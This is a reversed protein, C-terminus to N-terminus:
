LGMFEFGPLRRFGTSFAVAGSADVVMGEVNELSEILELGKKRGLVFVATALADADATNATVITASPLGMSPMGTVPDLIHHYRVGGHIYYRQYDGSTAVAIDEADFAAILSEPKRPHQLGVRWAKGAAPRGLVALDGGANVLANKVGAGALVALARDVAYGKGIAGLDIKMGAKGLRIQGDRIEIAADDVLDLARTLTKGAPPPGPEPDEFHWLAVVPGLSLRFTGKTLKGWGLGRRVVEIFEAPAPTFPGGANQNILSLLSDPRHPSMMEELRAMEGFALNVADDHGRAQGAPLHIEVLTGMIFRTRREEGGPGPQCASLLLLAALLSRATM